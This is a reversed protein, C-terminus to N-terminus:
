SNRTPASHDQAVAPPEDPLRVETLRAQFLKEIGQVVPQEVVVARLADLQARRAAEQRERRTEGGGGARLRVSLRNCGPFCAAVGELVRPDDTIKTINRQHLEHPATVTVTPAQVGDLAADLALSLYRSGGGELWSQFM